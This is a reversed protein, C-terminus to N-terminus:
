STVPECLDTPGAFDGAPLVLFDYVLLPTQGRQVTFRWPGQQFPVIDDTLYGLWILGKDDPYGQWSEQNGCCPTGHASHVTLVEGPTFQDLWVVLGIGIGSVSPIRDGQSVFHFPEEFIKLEGSATLPMKEVSDPENRCYYGAQFRAVAGPASLLIGAAGPLGFLAVCLGLVVPLLRM